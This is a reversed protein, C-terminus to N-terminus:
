ETHERAPLVELDGVPLVGLKRLLKYTSAHQVMHQGFVLYHPSYGTSNHVATRLACGIANLQGDWERQDKGIYARIAALVSRNVRESANAQPSHTATRIHTVGYKELCSLFEKSRFQVGNDSLITEPVGYVRFIEAVLYKVINTATAKHLPKLMTYKSFKDLIVLLSTNGAKSRPYPGLLDIYVHQWPMEVEIQKGM